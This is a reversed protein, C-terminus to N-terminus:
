KELIFETAIGTGGGCCLSAIGRRIERARMEHLLTIALRPGSAALPHGYAIAGGNVNIREIQERNLGLEKFVALTQAAFAENIEFLGYDDFTTGALKFIKRLAYAPAIGMIAPDVGVNCHMGIAAFPKLGLKYATERSMMLVAAAGDNLGSSNGATVTGDPKFAPRLKGLSELTTAPKPFEDASFLIPGKKTNIERPLIEARLRGAQQARACRTQSRLAYEDQEQRSIHYQEALNEATIGMNIGTDYLDPGCIRRATEMFECHIKLGQDGLRFGQRANEIWYPMNSMSESGGALVIDASGTAIHMYGVNIAALGSACQHEVTYGPVHHPFKARLLALRGLNPANSHNDVNGLLCLDVMAPEINNRKVLESLLPAVLEDAGFSTLSGQWQGIATRLGDVIVVDRMNM